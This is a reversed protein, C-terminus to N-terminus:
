IHRRSLGRANVDGSTPFGVKSSLVVEDRGDAILRGLIEESRGGAYVNATDFLNIGAERCRHFLAACTEEDAERGFTLTGLGLCSVQIGTRGLRRYEM